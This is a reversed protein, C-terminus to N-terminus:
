AALAAARHPSLLEQMRKRAHFLRSMVTGKPCGMVDAIKDYSLGELERLVLVTRHAWSLCDLANAIQERLEQSDLVDIPSPEGSPMTDDLERQEPRRKRLEDICTNVTIRYIWTFFAAEGDFGGLRRHIRMFAEQCADRADEANRLIGLAVGYIRREYRQVLAQFAGRDGTKAARVLSLDSDREERM